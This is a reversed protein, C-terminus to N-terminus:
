IELFHEFVVLLVCQFFLNKWALFFNASLFIPPFLFTLTERRHACFISVLGFLAFFFRLCFLVVAKKGIRVVDIDIGIGIRMKEPKVQGNYLVQSTITSISTTISTTITTHYYGKKRNRVVGVVWGGKVKKEGGERTVHSPLLTSGNLSYSLSWGGATAVRTYGHKPKM